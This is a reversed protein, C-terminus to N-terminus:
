EESDSGDIVTIVADSNYMVFAYVNGDSDERMWKAPTGNVLVTIERDPAKAIKVEVLSGAYASPSLSGRLWARSGEAVSVSYLEGNGCKETLERFGCHVCSHLGVTRETGVVPYPVAEGFTHRAACLELNAGRIAGARLRVQVNYVFETGRLTADSVQKLSIRIPDTMDGDEGLTESRSFLFEVAGSFAHDATLPACIDYPFIEAKLYSSHVYSVHHLGEASLLYDRLSLFYAQTEEETLKLYLTDGRLRASHLPPQPLDTLTAESLQEASFFAGEVDNNSALM